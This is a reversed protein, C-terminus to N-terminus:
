GGVPRLRQSLNTAEIRTLRITATGDPTTIVLEFDGDIFRSPVPADVRYTQAVASGKRQLKVLM